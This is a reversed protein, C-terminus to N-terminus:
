LAIMCTKMKYFVSSDNSLSITKANLIQPSITRWVTWVDKAWIVAKLNFTMDKWGKLLTLDGERGDVEINEIVRESTPIVPVQTIRLGLDTRSNITGDLIFANM